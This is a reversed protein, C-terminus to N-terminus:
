GHQRLPHTAGPEDAGEETNGPYLTVIHRHIRSELKGSARAQAREAARETVRRSHSELGLYFLVGVVGASNAHVQFEPSTGYGLGMGVLLSSLILITTRALRLRQNRSMLATLANGNPLETQM